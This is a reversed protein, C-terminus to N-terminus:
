TRTRIPANGESDVVIKNVEPVAQQTAPRTVEAAAPSAQYFAYAGLSVVAAAVVGRVISAAWRHRAADHRNLAEAVPGTGLEMFLEVRQRVAMPHDNWGHARAYRAYVYRLKAARIAHRM